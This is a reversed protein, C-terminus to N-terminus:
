VKTESVIIVEFRVLKICFQVCKIGKKQILSITILFIELFLIIKLVSMDFYFDVPRIIRLYFGSTKFYLLSKM